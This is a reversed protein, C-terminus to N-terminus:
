LHKGFAPLFRKVIREFDVAFFAASYILSYIMYEHSM